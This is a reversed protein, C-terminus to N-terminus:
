LGNLIDLSADIGEDLEAETNFAGTVHDGDVKTGLTFSTSGDGTGGVSVPTSVGTVGVGGTITATTGNRSELADLAAQDLLYSYHPIASSLKQGKEINSPTSSIDSWSPASKPMLTTQITTVWDNNQVKHEIGTTIFDLTDGYAKPLFDTVTHIVNYIKFGSFGDIDFKLKFPIFGIGGSTKGELNINSKQALAYTFFAKARSVASSIGSTNFSAGNYMLEYIQGGDKIIIKPDDDSPDKAGYLVLEWHKIVSTYFSSVESAPFELKVNPDPEVLEDKFRDSIGKNWKSFATSNEGKTYGGATAGVTIMTAFDPTIATQIDIKRVFNSENGNNKYGFLNLNYQTTLDKYQKVRGPIPTTDVIQLQNLNEDIIPELKNVSGMSKNIGECIAKLIPYVHVDGVENTNKTFTEELFNFNLYINQLNAVNVRTREYTRTPDNYTGNMHDSAIDFGFSALYRYMYCKSVPFQGLGVQPKPSYVSSYLGSWFYPQTFTEVICVSPDYSSHFPPHYMWDTKKNLFNGNFLDYTYRIDVIKEEKGSKTKYNPLIQNHIYSLLGGLRLYYRSEKGADKISVVDIEEISKIPNTIKVTDKPSDKVTTSVIRTSSNQIETTISAKIDAITYGRAEEFNEAVKQAWDGLAKVFEERYQINPDDAIDSNSYTVEYGNVTWILKKGNSLSIEDPSYKSNTYFNRNIIGSIGGSSLVGEPDYDELSFNITVTSFKGILKAVKPNIFSGMGHYLRIDSGGDNYSVHPGIDGVTSTPNNLSPNSSKHIYQLSWLLTHLMSRDRNKIMGTLPTSSLKDLQSFFSDFTSPTPHSLKLSEIVDGISVLTLTIDYTGDNGYKWEFNSIKGLIGDYNGYTSGRKLIIDQLLRNFNVDDAFFGKEILTFDQSVKNSGNTTYINNGWELLVTYGLRMYLTEIIDFQRKSHVKLRVTAKKISGRNLNRVNISEIGPQPVTGFDGKEYAGDSTFNQRLSLSGTESSLPTFKSNGGFLINNKALKENLNNSYSLSGSTFGLSSLKEGDVSVGSALKIFTSQANLIQLQTNTRESSTTKGSGQLKQRANIQIAFAEQIEEGIVGM